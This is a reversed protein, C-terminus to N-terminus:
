HQGRRSVELVTLDLWDEILEEYKLWSTQGDHLPPIKSTIGSLTTWVNTSEARHTGVIFEAAAFPNETTFDDLAEENDGM